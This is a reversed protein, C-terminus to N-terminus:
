PKELLGQSIVKVKAAVRPSRGKRALQIEARPGPRATRAVRAQGGVPALGSAGISVLKPGAIAVTVSAVAESSVAPLSTGILLREANYDAVNVTGNGIIDGFITPTAGNVGLWENRIGALDQSNVM